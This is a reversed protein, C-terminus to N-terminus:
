NTASNTEDGTVGELFADLDKNSVDTLMKRVETKSSGQAMQQGTVNVDASNIFAELDANSVHQLKQAVWQGPHKTADITAPSSKFYLISSIAVLGTIAAAAAYRMWRNGFSIIKATPPADVKQLIANPLNDFYGTPVTYPMQKNHQALLGPLVEDGVLAPLSSTLNSFYNEPVSFPMKKPIAALVPSLSELEDTAMAPLQRKVKALVSAAFNEFYDEPVTFVPQKNDFPLSSRLDKLEDHIANRSNM